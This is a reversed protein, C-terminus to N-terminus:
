AAVRFSHEHRQRFAIAAAAKNLRQITIEVGVYSSVVALLVASLVTYSAPETLLFVVLLCTACLWLELAAGAGFRGVLFGGCLTLSPLMIAYGAAVLTVVLRPQSVEQLSMCGLIELFAIALVTTYTHLAYKNEVSNTECGSLLYPFLIPAVAGSLVGGISFGIRLGAAVGGGGSAIMAPLLILVATQCVKVGHWPWFALISLKEGEYERRKGQRRVLLLCAYIPPVTAKAAEYTVLGVLGDQSRAVCYFALLAALIAILRVGVLGLVKASALERACIESLLNASAITAAGTLCGVMEGEGCFYQGVIGAAVVSISAFLVPFWLPYGLAGTKGARKWASVSYQPCLLMCIAAGTFYGSTYEQFEAQETNAVAWLLVALSVTSGLVASGGLQAIANVLRV